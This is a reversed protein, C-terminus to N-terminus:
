GKMVIMVGKSVKMVGNASKCNFRNGYLTAFTIM